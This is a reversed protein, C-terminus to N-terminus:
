HAPLALSNIYKIVVKKLFFKVLNLKATIYYIYPIRPRPVELDGDGENRGEQM